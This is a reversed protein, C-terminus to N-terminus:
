SIFHLPIVLKMSNMLLLSIIYAGDQGWRHIEGTKHNGGSMFCELRRHQLRENSSQLLVEKAKKLIEEMKGRGTVRSNLSFMSLTADSPRLVSMFADLVRHFEVPSEFTLM